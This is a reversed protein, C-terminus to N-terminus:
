RAADDDVRSLPSSWTADTGIGFARARDAGVVLGLRLVDQCPAFAFIQRPNLM